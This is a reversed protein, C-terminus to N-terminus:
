SGMVFRASVDGFDICAMVGLYHFDYTALFGISFVQDRLL